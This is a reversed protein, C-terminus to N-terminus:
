ACVSNRIINTNIHEITIELYDLVKGVFIVWTFNDQREIGAFRAKIGRGLKKVV